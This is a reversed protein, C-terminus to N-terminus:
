ELTDLLKDIKQPTLNEHFTDGIYFMPAGACAALCEAEKLTIRGDPTTEGLTVGLRKELHHVIEDSGCLMCSINTCVNIVHRGVPKLNFMTYFTAVEYVAIPPMGLYRAVADMAPNSLWGGNEAQVVKLAAIVAAQKWETPYQVVWKDIERRATESLEYKDTRATM